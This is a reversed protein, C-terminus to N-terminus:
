RSTPDAFQREWYESSTMEPEAARYAAAVEDYQATIRRAVRWTRRMLQLARRRDRRLTIGEATPGFRLLLEDRLVGAMVSRHQIYLVVPGLRRLGKPLLNGGLTAVALPRLLLAGLWSPPRLDPMTMEDESLARLVETRYAGRAQDNVSSPDAQMLAEPGALFAETGDLTAEAWDYRFSAISRLAVDVVRQRLERATFRPYALSTILPVNRSEYFASTPGNKHDFDTHWVGIGNVTVSRGAMHRLGWFVDDGRVFLPPPYANTVSLPFAYYWWAGYDFPRFRENELLVDIYLLNRGRGRAEWLHPSTPDCDAGAEFQVAPHDMRMMSGAVGLDDRLGFRLLAVTRPIIEPEFAIDDDMFLIHTALGRRRHEWLGRAFGGAGGLNPNRVIEVPAGGHVSLELNSANDIILVTVDEATEPHEKFQRALRAVNAAVYPMRNFTTIAVGLHVPRAPADRTVIELGRLRGEASQCRLRVWLLGEGLTRLPPLDIISVSSDIVQEAIPREAGDHGTALVEFVMTGVVDVRLGLEEVITEKQWVGLSFVGFFTDTRVEGGRRMVVERQDIDITAPGQLRLYLGIESCVDLAPIILRQLTRMGLPVM